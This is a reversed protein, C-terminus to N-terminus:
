GSWEFPLFEVTAAVMVPRHVPRRVSRADHVASAGVRAIRLRLQFKHDFHQVRLGTKSINM